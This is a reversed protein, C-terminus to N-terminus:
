ASRAIVEARGYVRPEIGPRAAHIHFGRREFILLAGEDSRDSPCGLRDCQTALGLVHEDFGKVRLVGCHTIAGAGLAM